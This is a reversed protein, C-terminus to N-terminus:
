RTRLRFSGSTNVGGWGLVINTGPIKWRYDHEVERDYRVDTKPREYGRRTYGGPDHRVRIRETGAIHYLDDPHECEAETRASYSVRGDAYERGRAEANAEYGAPPRCYGAVEEQVPVAACSALLALIPLIVIRGFTM